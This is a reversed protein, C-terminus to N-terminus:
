LEANRVELSRFILGLLRMDGKAESSKSPAVTKDVRYAIRCPWSWEGPVAPMVVQIITAVKGEILKHPVVVGNLSVKLTKLLGPQVEGSCVLEVLKDTRNDVAIWFYFQRGPGTWRYPHGNKDFELKHLGQSQSIYDDAELLATQPFIKMGDIRSAISLISNNLIEIHAELFEVKENLFQLQLEPSDPLDGGM